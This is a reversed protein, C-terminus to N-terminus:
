KIFILGWHYPGAEFEDALQMALKGCITKVEEPHVRRDESPGLPARMGPKWDVVVLRGGPQIMRHCETIIDAHKASQFLTTVLFGVTVSNDRITRTAGYIELNSWVTQLNNVGRMKAKTLVAPLIVKVVDVAYVVGSSGVLQGAPIALRGERGTGFDAVVDGPKVQARHLIESVDIIITPLPM